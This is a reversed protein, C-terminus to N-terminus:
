LAGAQERGGEILADQIVTMEYRRFQHAFTMTTYFHPVMADHPVLRGVFNTLM